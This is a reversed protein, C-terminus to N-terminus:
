IFKSRHRTTKPQQRVSDAEGGGKGVPGGASALRRASRYNRHGGADRDVHPRAAGTTRWGRWASPDPRPGRDTRGADTPKRRLRCECVSQILARMIYWTLFLAISFPF